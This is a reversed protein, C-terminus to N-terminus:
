PLDNNSVKKDEYGFIGKAPCYQVSKDLRIEKTLDFLEKVNDAIFGKMQNMPANQQKYMYIYKKGDTAYRM